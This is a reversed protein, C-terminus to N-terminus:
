RLGMNLKPKHGSMITYTLGVDDFPTHQFSVRTRSELSAKRPPSLRCSDTGAGIKHM